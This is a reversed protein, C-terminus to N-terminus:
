LLFYFSTMTLFYIVFAGALRKISRKEIKMREIITKEDLERAEKGIEWNNPM